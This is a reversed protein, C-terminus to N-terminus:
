LPGRPRVLPWHSILFFILGHVAIHLGPVSRITQDETGRLSENRQADYRWFSFVRHTLFRHPLSLRWPPPM